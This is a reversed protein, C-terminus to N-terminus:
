CTSRQASWEDDKHRLTSLEKPQVIVAGVNEQMHAHISKAPVSSTVKPTVASSKPLHGNVVLDQNDVAEPAGMTSIAMKAHLFFPAM